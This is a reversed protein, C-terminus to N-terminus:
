SYAWSPSGIQDLEQNMHGVVSEPSVELLNTDRMRLRIPAGSHLCRSEIVVEKGPFLQSM